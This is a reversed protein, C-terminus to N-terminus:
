PEPIQSIASVPHSSPIWGKTQAEIDGPWLNYEKTLESMLTEAPDHNDVLHIVEM